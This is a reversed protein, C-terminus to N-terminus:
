SVWDEVKLGPIHKFDHLNGSLLVADHAMVIAAIKLDSSGLRRHAKRLAQFQTAAVEDFSMIRVDNFFRLHQELRRYKEIQEAMPLTAKLSGLWGRSQEEYSIITVVVEQGSAVLRDKLRVTKETGEWLLVSIHDTDLVLM